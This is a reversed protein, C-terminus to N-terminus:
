SIKGQRAYMVREAMQLDAVSNVGMVEDRDIGVIVGVDKGAKCGIEIIDTLYFEGQANDPRVQQISDILFEKKVCYIGTNIIKIRKQVATADAEEVIKQVQGNEDILVRGYGKPDGLEVALVSLDRKAKVHDNLLGLVTKHTLVPVDGYLIIVQEIHDPLVPVACLVAHGTGLQEKQTSYYVDAYQSVIDQVIHAQYGVVLVVDDGAVKRATEVVYLIMPRGIVEHLVKAKKSKMRTGLGAALIIAAVNNKLELSEEM